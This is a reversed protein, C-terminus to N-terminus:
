VFSTLEPFLPFNYFDRVKYLRYSHACLMITGGQKIICAVQWIIFVVQWLFSVPLCKTFNWSKELVKEPVQPIDATGTDRVEVSGAITKNKKQSFCPALVLGRIHLYHMVM